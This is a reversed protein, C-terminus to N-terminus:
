VVEVKSFKGRKSVEFVRDASDVLDQVHTVFIFQVGLKESLMKLMQGAKSQLDRSLFRFPEDLVITDAIGSSRRLLSWLAVRLAFAAVDVPGGGSATMPDIREGGREFYLEAETKGRKQMFEIQFGYATDEFVADLAATVIDSIHLVVGEQTKQAVLQLVQQAEEIHQQRNTVASLKGQADALQRIVTDREGQKRQLRSDLEAIM